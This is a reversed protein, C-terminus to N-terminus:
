KWLSQGINFLCVNKHKGYAYIITDMEDRVKFDLSRRYEKLNAKEEEDTEQRRAAERVEAEEHKKEIEARYQQREEVRKDLGLNFPKPVTVPAQILGSLFRLSTDIVTAVEHWEPLSSTYIGLKMVIM